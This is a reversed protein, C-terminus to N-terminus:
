VGYLKQLGTIDPIALDRKATDGYGSYGFMTVASCSTTYLDDLGLTHGIEHTAINQVDM